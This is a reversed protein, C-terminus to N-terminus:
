FRAGLEVTSEFMVLASKNMIVTPGVVFEITFAGADIFPGMRLPVHLLPLMQVGAVLVGAGLGSGIMFGASSRGAQYGRIRFGYDLDIATFVGSSDSLMSGRVGLYFSNGVDADVALTGGWITGAVWLISFTPGVYFRGTAPANTPETRKPGDSPDTRSPRDDWRTSSMRPKQVRVQCTGDTCQEGTDCPPNCASVCQDDVCVFGTRCTPRCEPDAFALHSWLLLVTACLFPLLMRPVSPCRISRRQVVAYAYPNSLIACMAAFWAQFAWRYEGLVVTERFISPSLVVRWRSM